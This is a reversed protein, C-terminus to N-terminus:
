GEPKFHRALSLDLQSKVFALMSQPRPASKGLRDGLASQTREIIKDRASAIWRAATARSVRYAKGVEEITLGDLYHLSLVNREDNELTALVEKFARTFEKAYRKKLLAVEPDHDATAIGHENLEVTKRVRRKGNQAERVAAVRIWGGIPGRGTYLALKGPGKANNALKEGLRQKVDDAFAPSSDIRAIFSPVSRLHERELARWAKVDGHLCACALYLDVAHMKALNRSDGDELRERLHAMFVDLGVEIGPWAAAAAKAVRRLEAEDISV